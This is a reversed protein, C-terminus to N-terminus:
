FFDALATEFRDTSQSSTMAFAGFEDDEDRCIVRCSSPPLCFVSGQAPDSTPGVGTAGGTPVAAESQARGWANLGFHSGAGGTPPNKALCAPIKCTINIAWKPPSTQM